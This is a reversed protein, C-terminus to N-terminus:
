GFNWVRIADEGAGRIVGVIKEEDFALHKIEIRDEVNDQPRSLPPQPLFLSRAASSIAQPHPLVERDEEGRPGSPGKWISKRGGKRVEVYGVTRGLRGEGHGAANEVADDLEWVLVRGDRGGTVCRGADLSLATVSSSHALLTERHEIGGRSGPTLSFVEVKNDQGSLVCWRGDSDINTASGKVGPVPRVKRPWEDPDNSPSLVQYTCGREVDITVPYVPSQTPSSLSIHLEQVTATWSSPYVPATYTLYATWQETRPTVDHQASKNQSNPLLSLSAPHFAVDSKMTRLCRPGDGDKQKLDYVSLSFGRTCVILVKGHMAAYVIPDGRDPYYSQARRRLSQPRTQAPRIVSRSWTITRKEASPTSDLRITLVVFGGSQYFVGLQAPFAREEGSGTPEPLVVAQDACMATVCDPRSPNSWGPPPPIIGLVSSQSLPSSAPYCHVLPSEPSSTFIFSPFLALHQTRPHGPEPDSLQNLRSPLPSASTVSPSPSPPLPITAESLANGNSWNTGLRLMMKWDMGEHRVFTEEPVEEISSSKRKGKIDPPGPTGSLSINTSPTASSTRSPSPPPFARSPLRAVPRVSQPAMPGQDRSPGPDQDQHTQHPHPYRAMYLRKWLQPDLSMMQWYKSVGQVAALESPSLFSLIRLFLEQFPFLDAIGHHDHRARKAPPPSPPHLQERM